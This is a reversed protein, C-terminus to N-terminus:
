TVNCGDYVLSSRRNWYHYMDADRTCLYDEADCSHENRLVTAFPLSLQRISPLNEDSCRRLMNSRPPMKSPQRCGGMSVETQRHQALHQSAIM